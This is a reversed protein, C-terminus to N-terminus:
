LTIRANKGPAGCVLTCWSGFRVRMADSSELRAMTNGDEKLLRVPEGMSVLQITDMNLLYIADDPCFTSPICKVVGRPGQVNVGQFGALADRSPPLQVKSVQEKVLQRFNKTSLLAVGASSGAQNALDHAADIISEEILSADGTVLVGAYRNRDTLRTAASVGYLAGPDGSPFIADLGIPLLRDSAATYDGETFLFDGEYADLTSAITASFTIVGTARNVATVTGATASRLASAKTDAAVLKQGIAFNAADGISALTLSFDGGTVADGVVGIAGSGDRFLSSEIKDSLANVCDNLMLTTSEMFSKAGAGQARLIAETTISSTRYLPQVDVQWQALTPASENAIAKSFTATAGAGTSVVLPIPMKYGGFGKNKKVMTLLPRAAADFVLSEMKQGAYLYKLMAQISSPTIAMKSEPGIDDPFREPGSGFRVRGTRDLQNEWVEIAADFAAEAEAATPTPCVHNEAVPRGTNLVRM